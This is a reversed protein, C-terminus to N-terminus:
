GWEGSRDLNLRKRSTRFVYAVNSWTITGELTVTLINSPVNDALSKWRAESESLAAEVRKREAVEFLLRDNERRMAAIADEAQRRIETAVVETRSVAGLRSRIRRWYTSVTEPGIGLEVAIEKDTMGDAALLLVQAERKPIPRGTQM